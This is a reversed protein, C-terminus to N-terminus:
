FLKGGYEINFTSSFTIGAVLIIGLHTKTISKTKLMRYSILISIGGLVSIFVFLIGTSILDTQSDLLLSKSSYAVRVYFGLCFSWAVTSVSLM